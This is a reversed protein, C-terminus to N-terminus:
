NQGFAPRAQAAQRALLDVLAGLDNVVFDARVALADAAAPALLACPLGAIRAGRIADRTRAVMVSRALDVRHTAAAAVILRAFRSPMPVDPDVTEGPRPCAFWGDLGGGAGALAGAVARQRAIEARVAAHADASLDRTCSLAVCVYGQAKWVGLARAVSRPVAVTTEADTAGLVTRELMIAPRLLSRTALM